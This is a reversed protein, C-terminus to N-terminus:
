MLFGLGLFVSFLHYLSIMRQNAGYDGDAVSKIRRIISVALPLTFFVTWTGVPLRGGIMGWLVFLYVLGLQLAIFRQIRREGVRVSWNRKESAADAKKDPIENICLVGMVLFGLVGGVLLATGSLKGTMVLFVGSTLFPGFALGVVIEGWGKAILRLPPASYSWAAILGGLLFLLSAAHTKLCIGMLLLGGILLMGIAVRKVTAATVLGEQIVRSGGSFPTPRALRDSGLRDDHYDNLLNAGGHLAAVGLLVGTLLLLNWRGASRAILGGM